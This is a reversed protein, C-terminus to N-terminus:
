RAALVAPGAPPPVEKVGPPPRFEFTEDSLNENATLARVSSVLTQIENGDWFTVARRFVLGKKAVWFSFEATRKGTGYEVDIVVCPIRDKGILLEQEDRISAKSVGDAITDYVMEGLGTGRDPDFSVSVGGTFSSYENKWVSYEIISTGKSILVSRLINGSDKTEIRVRNPQAVYLTIAVKLDRPQDALAREVEAEVQFSKLHKYTEAVRNLYDRATQALVPSAASLLCVLFCSGRWAM